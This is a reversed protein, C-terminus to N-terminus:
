GGTNDIANISYNIGGWIIMESGTWVASHNTRLAPVNTGLSTPIWSDTAPDYRGGTNVAGSGGIWGGWVIMRSGTWVVSHAYRATPVNTGTSTALWSNSAPNYRGGSNLYT